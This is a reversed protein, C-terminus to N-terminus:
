WGSSRQGGGVRQRVGGLLEGPQVRARRRGRALGEKGALYLLDAQPNTKIKELTFIQAVGQLFYKGPSM